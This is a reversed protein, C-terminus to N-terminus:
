RVIPHANTVDSARYRIRSRRIEDRLELLAPDVPDIYAARAAWEEARAYVRADWFFKAADFLLRYQAGDLRTLLALVEDREPEDRRVIRRLRGLEKRAAVYAEDASEAARRVGSVAGRPAIARAEDARRDGLALQRKTETTRALIEKKRDADLRLKELEAAARRQDEDRARIRADLDALLQGVRRPDVASAFDIQLARLTALAAAVDGDDAAKQARAVLTDVARREADAM